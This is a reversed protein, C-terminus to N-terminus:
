TATWTLSHKEMGCTGAWLPPLLLLSAQGSILLDSTLAHERRCCSLEPFPLSSVPTPFSILCQLLSFGSLRSNPLGQSQFSLFCMIDAMSSRSAMLRWCLAPGWGGLTVPANGFHTEAVVVAGGGNFRVRWATVLLSYDLARSHSQHIWTQIHSNHLAM